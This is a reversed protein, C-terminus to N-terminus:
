LDGEAFLSMLYAIEDRVATEDQSVLNSVEAWIDRALRERFRHHAVKFANEKIGLERAAQAQTMQGRLHAEHYKSHRSSRVAAKRIIEMALERDLERGFTEFSIGCLEEARFEPDSLSVQETRGGTTVASKRRWEDQLHLWLVHSLFSRFKGAERMQAAHLFGDRGEWPKLIRQLLFNQTYEEAEDPNVRRRLFFNRIAPRYQTCFSELAASAAKADGRQIVNLLVTWKTTPFCGSTIAPEQSIM